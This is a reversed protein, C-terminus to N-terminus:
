IREYLEKGDLKPLPFWHTIKYEEHFKLLLFGNGDTHESPETRKNFWVDFVKDPHYIREGDSNFIPINADLVGFVLVCERLEPLRDKVSIFNLFLSKQEDKWEMAEMAAKYCDNESSFYSEASCDALCIHTCNDNAIKRAKEENSIHEM